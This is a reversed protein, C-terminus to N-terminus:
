ISTWRDLNEPPDTQDRNQARHMAAQVAQQGVIRELIKDFLPNIIDNLKCFVASHDKLANKYFRNCNHCAPTAFKYGNLDINTLRVCAHMTHKLPERLLRFWFSRQYAIM